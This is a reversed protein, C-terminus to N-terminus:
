AVRAKLVSFDPLCCDAHLLPFSVYLQTDDVYHSAKSGINKMMNELPKAYINFLLPPLISGQPM